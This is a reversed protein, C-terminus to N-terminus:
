DGSKGAPTSLLVSLGFRLGNWGPRIATNGVGLINGQDSEFPNKGFQFFYGANMELSAFNFISRRLKVGPEFYYNLSKFSYSSNLVELDGVNLNEQMDLGSFVVGGESFLSLKNKDYFSYLLIDIFAGPAVCSTKVDFLYEGSYDKSSIRTGTSYFATQLGIRFMKYSLLIGPKYYFYPPYDAIVRAPFPLSEFVSLNLKKLDKMNYFGIGSQMGIEMNQSYSASCLSVIIVFLINKIKIM